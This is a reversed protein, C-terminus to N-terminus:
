RDLEWAEEFQDDFGKVPHYHAHLYARLPNDASGDAGPSRPVDLWASWMVFRVQHKDLMEVANQVQEPRTYISDTVFSVKAPNQLGLLFYEDCDDAQFFFDDPHTHNLIWRFKEYRTSDLLAARGTPSDIYGKWGTQAIVPQCVLALLGGAWAVRTLARLHKAPGRTLWAYLILAPPAVSILRFWVPSNAIGLFLFFGVMCILVLRDWPEEPHANAHRRYQVYFFIYIFPLLLHIFIWMLLAGVELGLPLDIPLDAGYVYLTGWFWKSWYKVLFVVTCNLFLRLGVEWALYAMVPL